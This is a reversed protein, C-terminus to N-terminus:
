PGSRKEAARMVRLADDCEGELDGFDFQGKLSRVGERAAEVCRAAKAREGIHFYAWGLRWQAFQAWRTNPKAREAAIKACEWAARSDFRAEESTGVMCASVFGMIDENEPYRRLLEKAYDNIEATKNRQLLLMLKWQYAGTTEAAPDAAFAANLSALAAATDGREMAARYGPYRADTGKERGKAAAIDAESRQRADAEAQREREAEKGHDFNGDAVAVAIREVDAPAGIGVWAVLGNRDIIYATPIGATGAPKFWTSEMAKDPTDVAVRYDMQDGMRRVFGRVKELSATDGPGDRTELISVGIVEIEGARERALRTLGPIAAQCPGCWTAWFDVVYVKGKEFGTFPSGKIWAGVKVPPPAHGILAAAGAPGGFAVTTATVLAFVFVVVHAYIREFPKTRAGDRTMGNNQAFATPTNIECGHMLEARHTLLCAKGEAELLAEGRECPFDVRRWGSERGAGGM